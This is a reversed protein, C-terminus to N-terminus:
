LADTNNKGNRMITQLNSLVMVAMVATMINITIDLLMSDPLFNSLFQMAGSDLVGLLINVYSVWWADGFNYTMAAKLYDTTAVGGIATSQINFVGSGLM